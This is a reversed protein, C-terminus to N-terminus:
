NLYKIRGGQVGIYPGAFSASDAMLPTASLGAMAIAGSIMKPTKNM